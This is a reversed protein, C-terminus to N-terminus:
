TQGSVLNIAGPTSPGFVTGFSNDSMAFHQAYNWLATVTNGDYYDMVLGPAGFNPPACTSRGTDQVFRDMLGADMAM